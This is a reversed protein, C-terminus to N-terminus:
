ASAQPAVQGMGSLVAQYQRADEVCAAQPHRALLVKLIAMAQADNRLFESALKAGLLYVDPVHDHGPFRRDFGKVLAMAKKYDRRKYAAQALPLVARDNDLSFAPDLTELKALVDLAEDTQNDRILGNLYQGGQKLILVPDGKQVYLQHLRRNLKADLRDYRMQDKVEEIAADIKGEALLDRIKRELPDLPATAAEAAKRHHEDFEVSVELGLEGHYQYAVYGLLAYLVITLYAVVLGEIPYFVLEPLGKALTSVGFRVLVIGAFYALLIFYGTGMAQVCTLTHLPNLAKFIRHELALVLTAAPLPVAFLLALLWYWGPLSALDIGEAGSDVSADLPMEEAPVGALPPEAAGAAPTKDGEPDDAVAADGASMDGVSQSDGTEEDGPQAAPASEDATAVVAPPANAVVVPAPPPAVLGAIVSMAVIYLALLLGQKGARADHPPWTVIDPSDVNFRGASFEDFIQFAFRIVAFLVIGRLVLALPGLFGAILGGAAVLALLMLPATHLPAALFTGFKTWFPAISRYPDEDQAFPMGMM